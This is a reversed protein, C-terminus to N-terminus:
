KWSKWRRYDIYKKIGYIVFVLGIILNPWMFLLGDTYIYVVIVSFIIALIYGIITYIDIKTNMIQDKIYKECALENPFDSRKITKNSIVYSCHPCVKYEKDLEIKCFSCRKM